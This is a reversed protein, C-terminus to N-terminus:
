AVPSPRGLAAGVIRQVLEFEGFVRDLYSLSKPAEVTVGWRAGFRVFEDKMTGTNESVLVGPRQAIYPRVDGSLVPWEVDFARMVPALLEQAGRHMLWFGNRRSSGSHLDIGLDFTNAKLYRSVIRGEETPKEPDEGLSRNVDDGEPTRRTGDELGRPNVMPIVVFEVRERIKPETALWEAFMMAAGAGSPEDGHVGGTIVVRMEPPQGNTTGFRAALIERSRTADSVVGITSVEAPLARTREYIAAVDNAGVVSSMLKAARELESTQLVRDGDDFRRATRLLLSEEPRRAARMVEALAAPGVHYGKQLYATAERGAALLESLELRRDGDDLTRAIKLLPAPSAVAFRRMAEEVDAPAFTFDGFRGVDGDVVPAGPAPDRDFWALGHAPRVM